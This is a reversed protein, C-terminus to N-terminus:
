MPPGGCHTVVLHNLLRDFGSPNCERTLNHPAARMRSRWDPAGDFGYAAGELGGAQEHGIEVTAGQLRALFKGHGVIASRLGNPSALLHAALRQGRALRLRPPFNAYATPECV